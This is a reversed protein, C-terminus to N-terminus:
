GVRRGRPDWFVTQVKRRRVFPMVAARDGTRRRQREYELLTIPGQVPGPKEVAEPGCRRCRRTDDLHAIATPVRCARCPAQIVGHERTTTNRKWGRALFRGRVCHASRGVERAIDSWTTRDRIEGLEDDTPLLADLEAMAKISRHQQAHKRGCHSLQDSTLPNSCGPFQCLRKM